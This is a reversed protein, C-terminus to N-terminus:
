SLQSLDLFNAGSAAEWIGGLRDHLLLGMDPGPKVRRRGRSSATSTPPVGSAGGGANGIRRIM